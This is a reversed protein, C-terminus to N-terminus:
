GQHFVETNKRNKLTISFLHNTGAFIGCQPSMKLCIPKSFIRLLPLPGRYFRGRATFSFSVAYFGLPM